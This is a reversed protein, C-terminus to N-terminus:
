WCARDRPVWFPRSDGHFSTPLHIPPRPLCSLCTIQCSSLCTHSFPVIVVLDRLVDPLLRHVGPRTSTASFRYATAAKQRPSLSLRAANAVSGLAQGKPRRVKGTAAQVAAPPSGRSRSQPPLSGRPRHNLLSESQPKRGRGLLCALSSGQGHTAKRFPGAGEQLGEREEQLQGVKNCALLATERGGLREYGGSSFTSLLPFVDGFGRAEKLETTFTWQSTPPPRASYSSGLGAIADSCEYRLRRKWPTTVPM